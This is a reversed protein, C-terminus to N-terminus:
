QENRTRKCHLQLGMLLIQDSRGPWISDHYNRTYLPSFVPPLLGEKNLCKCTSAEVMVMLPEPQLRVHVCGLIVCM